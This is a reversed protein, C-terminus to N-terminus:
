KFPRAPFAIAVTTGKGTQSDIDLGYKEGYHLKIRNNVNYLGIKSLEPSRLHARIASLQEESMGTGDDEVKLRIIGEEVVADIRITIQGISNSLGHQIANEILPQLILKLVTEEYISEDLSWHCVLRNKYRYKMLRAYAQAYAVEERLTVQDSERSISYRFFRSLLHIMEIAEENEGVEIMFLLSELTNYLFHPNIQAQLAAFQLDRKEYELRLRQDKEVMSKHVLGEMRELMRNFARSLQDVEDIGYEREGVRRALNALDIEVWGLSLQNLPKLLYLSMGYSFIISLLLLVLLVLLNDYVLGLTQKWVASEDFFSVFRWPTQAIMASLTYGGAGEDRLEDAVKGIREANPHSIIRNNEDVIFAAMNNERFGSYLNTLYVIDTDLTMYGTTEAMASFGLVSMGLQISAQSSAKGAWYFHPSRHTSRVAEFFAGDMGSSQRYRTSFLLRNQVDYLSITDHHLGAYLADYILDPLQDAKELTPEAVYERVASDYALRALGLSKQNIYLEIRHVTNDFVTTYASKVEEEVIRASQLYFVLVFALLPLSVTATFYLFFRNRMTLRKKASAFKSSHLRDGLLNYRDIQNLLRQVPRLAEGSVLRSFLYALLACLAFCAATLLVILRLQKDRGVSEAYLLKMNHRAIDFFFLERTGDSTWRRTHPESAFAASALKAEAADISGGNFLIGGREDVIAIAAYNPVITRFYDSDLLLLVLGSLSGKKDKLCSAYYPHRNLNNQASDGGSGFFENTQGAAVYSIAPLSQRECVSLVSPPLFMYSQDSSYQTVPTQVIINRIFGNDKKLNFLFTELDVSLKLREMTATPRRELGDIYGILRENARIYDITGYADDFSKAIDSSMQNQQISRIYEMKDEVFAKTQAHLLLSIPFLLMLVVSLSFLMLFNNFKLKRKFSQRRM